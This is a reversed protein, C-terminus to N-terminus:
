GGGRNWSFRMGNKSLVAGPFGGKVGGLAVVGVAVVLCLRCEKFRWWSRM